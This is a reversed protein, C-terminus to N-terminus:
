GVVGTNVVEEQKNAMFCYLLSNNESISYVEEWFFLVFSYEVYKSLAYKGVM